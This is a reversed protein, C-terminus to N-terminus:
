TGAPGQFRDPTGVTSARENSDYAITVARGAPEEM